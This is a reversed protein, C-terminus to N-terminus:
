GASNAEWRTVITVGNLEGRGAADLDVGLERATEPHMWVETAKMYVANECWEVFRDFEHRTAIATPSLM